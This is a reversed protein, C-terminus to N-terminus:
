DLEEEYEYTIVGESGASINTSENEQLASAVEELLKRRREEEQAKREAELAAQEAAIREEEAKRLAEEERRIAEYKEMEAAIREEEQRIREQEEALRQQELEQAVLEEELLAILRLIMEKQDTNPELALYTRYEDIANKYQVLYFYANARNLVANSFNPDAALSYSYFEVAKDYQALSFASNGANYFLQRKNTGSVTTGKLFTDLSDQYKGVQYYCLGLYNYVMKDVNEETLALRLYPIAEEPNNDKFLSEGMSYNESSFICLFCGMFIILFLSKRCFKGNM